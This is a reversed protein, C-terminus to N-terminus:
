TPSGSTDAWSGVREETGSGRRATDDHEDAEDAEDAEEAPLSLVITSGQGPHSVIRIDGDMAELLGRAAYLGIGSGDTALRRADTSRFFQEFAQERTAADMGIGEDSIAIEVHPRDSGPHAARPTVEVRVTSGPASYKVANDLVAWLVQELRDPDGVVLHPAGEVVLEFTRDARLADWTREIIPAPRFVEQLPTLVGVELRSMALLQGVMRRLRDAQHAISELDARASAALGVSEQVEAALARISTLPTQLDHTIGRLFDTQVAAMRNLEDSKARLRTYLLAHEIATAAHQGLLTLLDLEAPSPPQRGEWPALLIARLDDGAAVDVIVFAGWPGIAHRAGSGSEAAELTSAWRHVEAIPMTPADIEQPPYVGTPLAEEDVSRLVAMAWTPDGALSCAATVMSRAAATADLTIPAARVQAALDAIQRNREDLASALRRQAGTLTEDGPSGESRAAALGRRALEVMSRAEDTVLRGAVVTVVAAWLFAGITAVLLATGLGVRSLWDGAASALFAFGILPPLAAILLVAILRISPRGLDV